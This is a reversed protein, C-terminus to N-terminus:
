GITQSHIPLHCTTAQPINVLVYLEATDSGFEDVMDATTRDTDMVGELGVTRREKSMKPSNAPSTDRFNRCSAEPIRRLPRSVLWGMAWGCRSQHFFVLVFLLRNEPGQSYQFFGAEFGFVICSKGFVANSTAGLKSLFNRGFGPQWASQSNWV